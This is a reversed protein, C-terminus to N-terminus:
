DSEKTLTEENRSNSSILNLLASFSAVDKVDDRVQMVDLVPETYITTLIDALLNTRLTTEDTHCKASTEFPFTM